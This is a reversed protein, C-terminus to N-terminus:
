QALEPAGRPPIDPQPACKKSCRQIQTGACTRRPLLLAQSSMYNGNEMSSSAYSSATRMACSVPVNGPAVGTGRKLGHHIHRVLELARVRMKIADLDRTGVALGRRRTEGRRDKTSFPSFHANYVEGSSTWISSRMSIKPTSRHRRRLKGVADGRSALSATADVKTALLGALGAIGDRGKIRKRNGRHHNKRLGAHRPPAPPQCPRDSPHWWRWGGRLRQRSPCRSPGCSSEPRYRSFIAASFAATM